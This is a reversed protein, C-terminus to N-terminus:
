MARAPFVADLIGIVIAALIAGIITVGMNPVLFQALYIIIAAIIFGKIGKGFPSADVGMLLEVLYDLVSIVVAAILFSWVGNISFGPTVFSTVMLIIAVLVFRGIWRLISSNNNRQENNDYGM